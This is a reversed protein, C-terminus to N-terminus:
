YYLLFVFRVQIADELSSNPTSVSSVTSSNFGGTNTKSSSGDVSATSARLARNGFLSPSSLVTCVKGEDCVRVRVCARVCMEFHAEEEEPTLPEPVGGEVVGVVGEADEEEHLLAEIQELELEINRKVMLHKFIVFDEMALLQDM